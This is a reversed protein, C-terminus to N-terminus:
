APFGVIADGGVKELDPEDAILGWEEAVKEIGESDRVIGISRDLRERGGWGAFDEEGGDFGDEGFVWERQHGDVKVGKLGEVILSPCTEFFEKLGIGSEFKLGIERPGAFTGACIWRM